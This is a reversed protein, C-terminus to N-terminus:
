TTRLLMICFAIFVILVLALIGMTTASKSFNAASFTGPNARITRYLFWGILVMGLMALIKIWEM